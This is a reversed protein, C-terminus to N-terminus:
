NSNSLLNNVLGQQLWRDVVCPIGLLRTKRNSKPIEVGRIAKPVYERSLIETLLSPKYQDMFSKLGNVEMGDVGASGQNGVVQRYARYLNKSQLVKAIM